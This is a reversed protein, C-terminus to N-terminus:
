RSVMECTLPDLALGVPLPLNEPTPACTGLPSFLLDTAPVARDTIRGTLLVAVDSGGAAALQWTGSRDLHLRVMEGRRLAAERGQAIVARLSTARDAPTFLLSPAVVGAAIAVLILVVLLEILTYGACRTVRM